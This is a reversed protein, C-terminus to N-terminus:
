DPRTLYRPRKRAKSTKPIPAPVIIKAIALTIIRVEGAPNDESPRDAYVSEKADGRRM